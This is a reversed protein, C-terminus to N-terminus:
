VGTFDKIAVNCANRLQLLEDLNLYSLSSENIEFRISHTGDEFGDVAIKINEVKKGGMRETQGGDHLKIITCISM